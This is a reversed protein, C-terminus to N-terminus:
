RSPDALLPFQELCPSYHLVGVHLAMRVAPSLPQDATNSRSVPASGAALGEGAAPTIDSTARSLGASSAADADLGDGLRRGAPPVLGPVGMAVFKEVWSVKEQLDNIAPGVVSGGAFPAGMSFREVFRARVKRPQTASSSKAGPPTMPHVKLFAGVAGLFGEHRLFSAAMEGQVINCVVLCPRATYISHPLM